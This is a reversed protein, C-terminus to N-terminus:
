YELGYGRSMGCVQCMAAGLAAFVTGLVMSRFTLAPDGDDRIDLLFNSVDAGSRIVPEGNVLLAGSERDSLDEISSDKEFSSEAKQGVNEVSDTDQKKEDIYVPETRAPLDPLPATGSM